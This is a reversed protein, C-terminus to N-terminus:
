IPLEVLLMMIAIRVHYGTGLGRSSSETDSQSRGGLMRPSPPSDGSVSCLSNARFRNHMFRNSSLDVSTIANDYKGRLEIALSIIEEVSFPPYHQLTRLIVCLGLNQWPVDQLSELEQSLLLTFWRFAFNDASVEEKALHTYVELDIVWLIADFRQLTGAIGADSRDLQRLFMDRHHQAMLNTLCYFADAEAL